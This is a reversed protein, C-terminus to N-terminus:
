VSTPSLDLTTVSGSSVYDSDQSDRYGPNPLGDSSSLRTNRNGHMQCYDQSLNKVLALPPPALVALDKRDKASAPMSLSHHLSTPKKPPANGSNPLSKRQDCHLNLYQGTSNLRDRLPGPESPEEAISDKYFVTEGPLGFLGKGTVIEGRLTQANQANELLYSQENNWRNPIKEGASGFVPPASVLDDDDDDYIWSSRRVRQPAAINHDLDDEDGYGPPMINIAPQPVHVNIYLQYVDTESKEKCTIIQKIEAVLQRFSPRDM